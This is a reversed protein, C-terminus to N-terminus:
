ITRARMFAVFSSLDLPNLPPFVNTDRGPSFKERMHDLLEQDQALEAQMHWWDHIMRNLLYVYFVVSYHSTPKIICILLACLLLYKERLEKYVVDLFGEEAGLIHVVSTELGESLRGRMDVYVYVALLDAEDPDWTNPDLGLLSVFGAIDSDLLRPLPRVKYPDKQALNRLLAVAAERSGM